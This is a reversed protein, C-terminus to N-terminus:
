IVEHGFYSQPQQAVASRSGYDLRYTIREGGKDIFPTLLAVHFHNSKSSSKM